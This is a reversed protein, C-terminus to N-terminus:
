GGVYRFVTNWGGYISDVSISDAKTRNDLSHAGMRKGSGAYIETHGGWVIVDGKKMAKESIRGLEKWKKSRRFTEEYGSGVMMGSQTKCQSLKEKDGGGHAYCAVVFTTCVYHYGPKGCSHCAGQSYYYRNDDCIKKGFALAGMIGKGAGSDYSAGEGYEGTGSVKLKGSSKFAAYEKKSLEASGAIAIGDLTGEFTLRYITKGNEKVKSVNGKIDLEGGIKQFRKHWSIAEAVRKEIHPVGPREFQFCFAKTAMDINRLLKFSDKTYKYGPKKSFSTSMESLLFSVQAEISGPSLNLGKAHKILRAQRGSDTWQCIGYGKGPVPSSSRGGGQVIMPDFSSEISINGLIGAAAEPTFGDKKLERFLYYANKEKDTKLVLKGDQGKKRIIFSDGSVDGKGSLKFSGGKLTIEAKGNAIDLDFLIDEILAGTDEQEEKLKKKNEADASVLAYITILSALLVIFFFFGTPLLFLMIKKM